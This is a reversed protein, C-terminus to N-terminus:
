TPGAIEVKWAPTNVTNGSTLAQSTCTTVYYMIASNDHLVVHTASGSATISIGSKAAMTVKRSSGGGDGAAVTFDGSAMTAEALRAAAIAAYNAPESSCVAMRIVNNKLVNHAGDLYASDCKKAM